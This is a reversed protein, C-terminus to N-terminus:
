AQLIGELLSFPSGQEVSIVGRKRQVKGKTSVLDIPHHSPTAWHSYNDAMQPQTGPEM